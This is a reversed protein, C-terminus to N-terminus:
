WAVFGVSARASQNGGVRGLLPGARYFRILARAQILNYIDNHNFHVSIAWRSQQAWGVIASFGVAALMWGRWSRPYVLAVVAWAVMALGYDLLGVFFRPAAIVWVVSLM